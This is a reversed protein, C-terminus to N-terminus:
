NSVGVLMAQAVSWMAQGFLWPLMPFTNKRSPYFNLQWVNFKHNDILSKSHKLIITIEVQSPKAPKLIRILKKNWMCPTECYKPRRAFHLKEICNRVGYINPSNNNIKIWPLTPGKTKWLFLPVWITSFSFSVSKDSLYFISIWATSIM